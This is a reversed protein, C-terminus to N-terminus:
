GVTSPSRWERLTLVTKFYAIVAKQVCGNTVNVPETENTKATNHMCKLCCRCIYLAYRLSSCSVNFKYEQPARIFYRMHELVPTKQPTVTGHQTPTGSTEFSSTVPMKLSEFNIFFDLLPQHKTTHRTKNQTSNHKRTKHPMTNSQKIKHETTNDPKTKHATTNNQTSNHQKKHQQTTKQKTADNQKSDYKRM